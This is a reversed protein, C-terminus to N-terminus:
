DGTRNNNDNEENKKRWKQWELDKGRGGLGNKLEGIVKERCLPHIWESQRILYFIRRKTKAISNKRRNIKNKKDFCGKCLREYKGIKRFQKECKDCIM